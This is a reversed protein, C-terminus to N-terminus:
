NSYKCFPTWPQPLYDEVQAASVYRAAIACAEDAEWSLWRVLGDDSATVILDDSPSFALSNIPQTSVQLAGTISDGTSAEWLRFSGDQAASALLKGDRSFAIITVDAGHRLPAEDVLQRNTGNWLWIKGDSDGAAIRDGQPSVAVADIGNPIQLQHEEVPQQASINWLHIWGRREGRWGGAALLQGDSSLAVAQLSDRRDVALRKEDPGAGSPDWYGVQDGWTSWALQGQGGFVLSSGGFNTAVTRKAPKRKAIHWITVRGDDSGSALSKGDASLAVAYFASRQRLPRRTQRHTHPDWFRIVSHGGEWGSGVSAVVSGDPDFAVNHAFRGTRVTPRFRESPSTAWLTVNGHDDATALTAEDASFSVAELDSTHGPLRNGVATGAALDWLRLEGDAGGTVALHKRASLAMAYVAGINHRQLPRGQAELTKADWWRLAEGPGGSGSTALRDGDPSFVVSQIGDGSANSSTVVGHMFDWAHVRDREDAYALRTGTPSFAVAVAHGAPGAVEGRVRTWTTTDWLQLSAGFRAIALMGSQSVALASVRRVRPIPSRLEKGTRPDWFQMGRRGGAILLKSDHSFVISSVQTARRGNLDISTPVGGLTWLQVGQDGGVAMMAGDRSFALESLYGVQASIPSRLPQLLATDFALRAQALAATSRPLPSDTATASEAALALALASNSDPTSLSATALALAQAARENARAALALAQAARENARAREAQERAQLGAVTATAALVTLTVFVALVRGRRRRQASSEAHDSAHLFEIEARNLATKHRAFWDIAVNLRTGRWLLDPNREISWESAALSIRERTAIDARDQDIWQRLRPWVRILAEHSVEVITGRDGTSTTLLRADSLTHVVHEVTGAAIDATPIDTLLAPRKTDATGEGPHSLRLLVQKAATQEEPTFSEWIQDARQSVAGAVGGVEALADLTLTRGRRREWLEFLTHEMLPLTGPEVGVDRVIADVLGQQLSLGALRAPQEIVQRIADRDLPGVLYQHNALAQALAPYDAAHPYFDARMTIVVTCPGGMASAQLLNGFFRRRAEIDECQTFTEEVQDVVLAVTQDGGRMRVSLATDGTALESLVAPAPLGPHVQLVAAALAELPRAGPTLTVIAWSESGPVAGARLRPLLGALTVSSKGSGSPGVVALFQRRKLKEVLRQIDRDRGFFWRHDEERFSRLGRYPVPEAADPRISPAGIPLGQVARALRDVPGAGEVRGRLDVWTRMSLFPDIVTPDFPDPVGPLLVLFVRFDPDHASRDLAVKVEPRQWDGLDRASLFVACASSAYLGDVLGDQWDRGPVLEWTDLWPRM